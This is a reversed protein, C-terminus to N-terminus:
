HGCGTGLCRTTAVVEGAVTIEYHEAQRRTGVERVSGTVTVPAGRVTTATCRVSFGGGVSTTRAGPTRCTPRDRVEIGRADLVEVTGTAVANRYANLSIARSPDACGTTAWPVALLLLTGLLRM